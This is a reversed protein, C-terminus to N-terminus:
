LGDESNENPETETRGLTGGVSHNNFRELKEKGPVFDKSGLSERKRGYKILLTNPLTDKGM